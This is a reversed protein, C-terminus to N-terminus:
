RRFACSAFEDTWPLWSVGKDRITDRAVFNKWVRCVTHTPLPLTQSRWKSQNGIVM